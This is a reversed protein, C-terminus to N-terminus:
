FDIETQGKEESRTGKFQDRMIKNVIGLAPSEPPLSLLRPFLSMATLPDDQFVGRIFTEIRKKPISADKDGLIELLIEQNQLPFLGLKLGWAPLREKYSQYRHYPPSSLLFDGPAKGDLNKEWPKAGLNLLFRALKQKKDLCAIHLPTNGGEDKSDVSLGLENVFFSIFKGTRSEENPTHEWWSKALYHLINGDKFDVGVEILRTIKDLNLQNNKVFYFGVTEGQNTRAKLDAGAEKLLSFVEESAGRAALLHAPTEGKENRVNPRAGAELLIKVLNFDKVAYHLPYNKGEGPENPNAGRDLTERVLQYFEEKPFDKEEIRARLLLKTLFTNGDPDKLNVDAGHQVLLLLSRIRERTEESEHYGSLDHKLFRMLLPTGEKDLASPNAGHTILVRLTETAWGPLLFLPTRGELNESRPDAGRQLLLNVVDLRGGSACVYHLPTNGWKDQENINLGSALLVELAVEAEKLYDESLKRALSVRISQHEQNLYLEGKAWYHLLTKQEQPERVTLDFGENSLKKLFNGRRYYALLGLFYTEWDKTLIPSLHPGLIDWIKEGDKRKAISDLVRDLKEIKEVSAGYQLLLELKKETNEIIRDLAIQIAFGRGDPSAGANLVIEVSEPTGYILALLLPLQYDEFRNDDPNTRKLLATLGKHDKREIADRIRAAKELWRNM